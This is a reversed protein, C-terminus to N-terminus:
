FHRFLLTRALRAWVRIRHQRVKTTNAENYIKLLPRNVYRLHSALTFSVLNCFYGVHLYM